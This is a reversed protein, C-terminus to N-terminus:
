VFFPWGLRSGHCEFRLTVHNLMQIVATPM